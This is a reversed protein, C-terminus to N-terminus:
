TFYKTGLKATLAELAERDAQSFAAPDDSDVDLVAVTKGQSDIVPVVIESQTSAACAIHGPFQNVDDVLQTEQERAAAGCVGKEFPILLCGHGGQYPGIKLVGDAVTRYFGTWNYYDFSHHLECVVTAMAAVWDDENLLLADIRDLVDQYNSKKQSESAKYPISPHM